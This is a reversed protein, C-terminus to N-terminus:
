EADESVRNIVEKKHRRLEKENGIREERRKELVGGGGM